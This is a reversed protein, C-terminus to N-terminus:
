AVLFSQLKHERAYSRLKRLAKAEIQRVRETTVCIFWAVERYSMENDCHITGTTDKHITSGVKGNYGIGFRLKLVLAQRPSLVSLLDSITKSLFKSDDKTNHSIDSYETTKKIWEKEKFEIVNDYEYLKEIRKAIRKELSHGYAGNIGDEIKINAFNKDEVINLAKSTEICFERFTESSKGDTMDETYLIETKIDKTKKGHLKIYKKWATGSGKYSYPDKTTICLYKLGTKHTKLLLHIQNQNM